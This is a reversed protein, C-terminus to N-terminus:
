VPLDYRHLLENYRIRLVDMAMRLSDRFVSIHSHPNYYWPIAIERVQYGRQRAIFLIEVDFSWGPITMHPFLDKAAAAQFCKFGCQTDQLGPLVMLRIFNNFIRGVFHRYAPENFRHAGPAERSAIAINVGPLNPPLFRNVQDIPMSLDADCMFRYEGHAELMGHRVALGKGRESVQLISLRPSYHHPSKKGKIELQDAFDQAIQYTRDQSGNEIVLVESEYDQRSLFDFVTELTGPLRDEENHAPIILSLFPEPM